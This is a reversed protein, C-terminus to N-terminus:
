EKPPHEGVIKTLRRMNKVGTRNLKLQLISARGIPTLGIVELFDNSWSFHDKWTHIRLNFLNVSSNTLLDFVETKDSKANNCGNCSYALNDLENGGERSIPIVHEINFTHISNKAWCQCYECRGNARIIVQDKIVSPIYRGSM